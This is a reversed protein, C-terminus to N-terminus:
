LNILIPDKVVRRCTALVKSAEHADTHISTNTIINHQRHPHIQM